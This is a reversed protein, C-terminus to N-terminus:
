DQRLVEYDFHQFEFWCEQNIYEISESNLISEPTADPPRIGSKYKGLKEPVWEIDLHDCIKAMDENMHEYRIVADHCYVDDIVYRLRDSAYRGSSKLFWVFQDKIDKEPCTVQGQKVLWYFMSVARDYPNRIMTFKFYDQWMEAGIKDKIRWAAMHNYWTCGQPNWGRYGVVGASSVLEETVEDIEQQSDEVCWPQFYMEVSTGATKMPKVFIFKKVHSILM